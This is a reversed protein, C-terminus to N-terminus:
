YSTARKRLTEKAARGRRELVPMLSARLSPLLYGLTTMASSARSPTRERRGDAASDLV